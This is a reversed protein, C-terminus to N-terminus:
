KKGWSVTEVGDAGVLGRSLKKRPNVATKHQCLMLMPIDGATDGYGYSAAYDVMCDTAALVEAIRLTKEVGRCNQGHILGSYVGNDDVHMRTGLLNDIKLHKKVPELYFSTSASVLWVETGEKQHKRITEVGEPYLNPILVTDAFDQAIKDVEDKTKGKLFSLTTQKSTEATIFHCMYLAGMVGARLLGGVGILRKKFAYFCFRIISDGKILTGDFDFFAYSKQM